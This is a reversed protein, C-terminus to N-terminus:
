SGDTGTEAQRMQDILAALRPPIPEDMVARFERRLAACIAEWQDAESQSADPEPGAPLPKPKTLAPM